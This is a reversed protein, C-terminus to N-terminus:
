SPVTRLIPSERLGIISHCSCTHSLAGPTIAALFKNYTWFKVDPYIYVDENQIRVSVCATHINCTHTRIYTHTHTHSRNHTHRASHEYVYMYAYYANM